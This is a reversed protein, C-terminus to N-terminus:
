LLCNRRLTLIDIYTHSTTNMHHQYHKYANNSFIQTSLIRQHPKCFTRHFAAKIDSLTITKLHKLFNNRKTFDFKNNILENLNTTFESEINDHPETLKTEYSQIYKAIQTQTLSNIYANSQKIFTNNYQAIQFPDNTNSQVLLNIGFVSSDYEKPFLKVIYGLSHKTRLLDFYKEHLIDSLLNNLTIQKYNNINPNTLHYQYFSLLSNNDDNKNACNYIFSCNRKIKYFNNKVTFYNHQQSKHNCPYKNVFINYTRKHLDIANDKSINGQILWKFSSVSNLKTNMYTLFHKTYFEYPNIHHLYDVINQIPQKHKNLIINNYMLAQIYPSNMNVNMLKQKYLNFYREFKSFHIRQINNISCVNVFHKMYDEIVETYHQSYGNSSISISDKSLSLSVNIGANSYTEVYDILEDVIIKNWIYNNIEEIIGSSSNNNNHKHTDVGLILTSYIKPTGYQMDRKHYIKVGTNNDYVCQPVYKSVVDYSANMLKSKSVNITNPIYMNKLPFEFECKGEGEYVSKRSSSNDDDIHLEDVTYEIGYYTEKRLREKDLRMDKSLLFVNLNGKHLHKRLFKNVKDVNVDKYLYPEILVYQMDNHHHVESIRRSLESVYSLANEKHKYNFEIVSMRKIDNVYDYGVGKSLTNMIYKYVYNIVDNYKNYGSKTLNVYVNVKAFENCYNDYDCYVSHILKMQTLHWYLSNTIKSNIISQFVNLPKIYKYKTIDDNINFQLILSHEDKISKMKIIKGLNNNDYAKNKYTLIRKRKRTNNHKVAPVGKFCANVYKKMDDFSHNSLVCLSLNSSVTYYDNYFRMLERQLKKINNHRHLLTNINGTPFMEDFVSHKNALTFIMQYVRWKDNNVNKMHESHVAHIERQIANDCILADIVFRSFVNMAHQLANKNVDFYFNTNTLATYANASGNNNALYNYFYNEKPFMKSGMFVMHELLHASGKYLKNENISGANVNLSMASKKTTADNILLCKIGNSLTYYCYKLTENHPKIIM